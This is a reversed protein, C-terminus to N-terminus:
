LLLSLPCDFTYRSVFFLLKCCYCCCMGLNESKRFIYSVNPLHGTASTKQRWACMSKDVIMWAGYVIHKRIVENLKNVAPQFRWWDAEEKISEDEWVATTFKRVHHFKYHKMFHEFSALAVFSAYM